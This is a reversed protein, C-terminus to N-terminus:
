IDKLLDQAEDPGDPIDAFLPTSLYREGTDPLMTLIVTGPEAQEAVKLAAAFTGGSSIGCFIGENVALARSTAIAEDDTVPVNLHAVERDLVKPLFDPTWGQIKHPQWPKGELMAAGAPETSVIRVEPRALRIMHGAGTLTGGTGYGSVFYDLRRDAFDSLVEPGTTNRHFAPNAANEFQQTMFWGHRAALAETVRVMGTAREAAPTLVVRAGLFRMLRRREISFSEAMVSVFPYGRVACVMALAIGTNGSTAEIVTQGPKLLGKKEADLIIGLALRDKVSGMPNFAEVKVYMEVGDPALRNIRIVPTHGITQLINDYIM